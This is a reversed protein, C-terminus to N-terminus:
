AAQKWCAEEAALVSLEHCEESDSLGNVASQVSDLDWSSFEEGLDEISKVDSDSVSRLVPLDDYTDELESISEIDSNPQPQFEPMSDWDSGSDLQFNVMGLEIGQTTDALSAAHLHETKGLDVEISFNSIGPPKGNSSWATNAKPCNQAIHGTEKCTFCKGTAQLEEEEHKEVNYKKVASNAACNFKLHGPKTRSPSFRWPNGKVSSFGPTNNTHKRFPSSDPTSAM